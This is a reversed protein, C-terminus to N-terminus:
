LAALETLLLLLSSSSGPNLLNAVNYLLNGLVEGNGTQAVLQANINSTTVLLGLLDAQVPPQTGGSTAIALNLIPTTAGPTAALLTPSLLTQVVGPLAAIASSPLTLQAANLVGVVKALLADLNQSLITLNGPTADIAHLLSNLLNGLMDGNGTQDFANVTIPATQLVLGLLNVDLPPVTLELFQDPALNVPPTAAPAIGPIETNLETLLQALANNVDTVTLTAPPNDFLHALDTLINGLVLGTGSHATLTLHIPSTTVLLGLLDLQVPAVTVDLVSTTSAAVTGSTDTAISGAPLALSASNVLNVTTALANNLAAGVGQFNVLTGLAGLLNGLLQGDGGQASITVTIPDTHVELGLLNLDLPKLQLQVLQQPAPTTGSLSGGASGATSSLNGSGLADLLTLLGASGNPNALNAVNYLLNGLVEGSGTVASLRADINSTTVNLGLLNVDVPPSTGNQSAIVLDLVQASSGAPAVLTPNLLTQLAPPLASVLAPPVTLTATNLAGVVKALVANLTNNLQAVQDPTANITNLLSTLVNGLLNGPAQQADANVTIPTTQLELGLLNLNLAPVTLSLVQGPAPQVTPVTAATIGSLATNVEGLLNTLDQNLTAIDLPQGPLNNFLNALDSVINGLVLGPGSHATINVDIPSTLVVTGLLDLQVPAVHLQLVQTTAVPATAFSTKGLALALSSSNLLGVTSSLVQNLANSAQQLNLLNAATTLLNGLLQGNGAQASLSIDIESTQVQLGLLNLNIAPLVVTALGDTGPSTILYTPGTFNGNGLGVGGLPHDQAPNTLLDHIMDNDILNLGLTGTGSVGSVTVTYVAGSGSVSIGTDVVSGSTVAQFDAAAVGAVPKSFTVQFQVTSASTQPDGLRTIATVTPPTSDETILPVTVAPSIKNGQDLMIFFQNGANKVLPVSIAFSTGKFAVPAAAVVPDVFPDYVGNHNSDRFAYIMMGSKAPDALTGTITYASQDVVVPAAPSLITPPTLASSPTIRDELSELTLRAYSMRPNAARKRQSRRHLTRKVWSIM